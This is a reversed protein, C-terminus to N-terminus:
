KLADASMFLNTHLGGQRSALSALPLAANPLMVEQHINREVWGVPLFSLVDYVPLSARGICGKLEPAESKCM